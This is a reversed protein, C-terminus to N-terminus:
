ITVYKRRLHLPKRANQDNKHAHCFLAKSCLSFANKAFSNDYPCGSASMSGEIGNEALMSKYARNSYLSERDNHFVLGKHRGRLVLVNALARKCLESDIDREQGTGGAEFSRVGTGLWDIRRLAELAFSFVSM